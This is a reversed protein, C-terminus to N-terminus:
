AHQDIPVDVYCNVMLAEVTDMHTVQVYATCKVDTNIGAQDTALRLASEM